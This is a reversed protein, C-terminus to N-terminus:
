LISHVYAVMLANEYSTNDTHTTSGIWRYFYGLSITNNENLKKVISYQFRNERMWSKRGLVFVENSLTLRMAPYIPFSVQYLFRIRDDKAKVEPGDLESIWLHAYMLRLLLQFNFAKPRYEFKPQLWHVQRYNNLSRAVILTYDLGYYLPAKSPRLYVTNTLAALELKSNNELFRLQFIGEYSFKNEPSTKLILQPWVLNKRKITQATACLSVLVLLHLKKFLAM